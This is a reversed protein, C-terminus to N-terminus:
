GIAQQYTKKDLPYRLLLLAAAVFFFAPIPGALAQIAALAPAGQRDLHAVYGAWGMVLGSAGVGGAQGLKVAVNWVGYYAGEDRTGQKRAEVEIADPLLAYPPAYSFGLGMGAFAMVGVVFWPGGTTGLLWVALSALALVVMACQYTRVKGFRRSFLVSLPVFAMAVVLLVGLALNSLERAGLVYEFLYVLSGSLFTIGLLHLTYTGLVIRYPLNGLVVKWSSAISAPRSTPALPRERVVLGTTLSSLAVIAGFVLGVVVFGQRPNGPFLALIPQVATAGALTGVIAFGFRYGNLSMRENYDTTLEPTLSGYPINVVSFAVNLLTFAFTAWWFLATQDVLAPAAFFFGLAGALPLAGLVIWPRRRGWRTRSRDSSLGVLPDVVADWLKGVLLATGAAAAALGVTDTLYHLAWFSLATFLLNGGLDGVGFGVKTRVSLREEVM